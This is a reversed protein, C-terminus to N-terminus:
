RAPNRRNPIPPSAKAQQQQYHAIAQYSRSLDPLSPAIDIQALRKLNDLAAQTPKANKDFYRQVWQIATDIREKYVPAEGSLLALRAQELQLRLNETLFFRQEPALLARVPEDHNRIVVLSKLDQWIAAPVQSWTEIKHSAPATTTPTQSRAAPDPTLLPLRGVDHTLSSLNLAIGVTDVGAANRLAQLDEAIAKRVNIVAPRQSARLREDASQLAKSATVVDHNFTLQQSAIEILHDAELVLWDDGASQEHEFLLALQQAADTDAQQLEQFRQQLTQQQEANHKEWTIQKEQLQLLLRHDARLRLYAEWGGYGLAAVAVLLGGLYLAKNGREPRSAASIEDPALSPLSKDTM